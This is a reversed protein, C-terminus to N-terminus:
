LLITMSSDFVLEPNSLDNIKVPIVLSFLLRAALSLLTGLTPTKAGLLEFPAGVYCLTLCALLSSWSSFLPRWLFHLWFACSLLGIVIGASSCVMFSTRKHPQLVVWTLKIKKTRSALLVVPKWVCSIEYHHVCLSHTTLKTSLM